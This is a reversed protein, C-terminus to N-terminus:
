PRGQWAQLLGMMPWRKRPKEPAAEQYDLMELSMLYDVLKRVESMPVNSCQQLHAETVFRQSLESVMRRYATKRFEAPLDPWASLKYEKM